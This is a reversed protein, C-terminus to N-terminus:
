EAIEGIARIITLSQEPDNTILQIRASMVESPLQSPDATVTIEMSKGKKVKGSSPTVTIGADTSYARRVMLDSKGRNEVTFTRSVNEGSRQITGFDLRETNVAVVPANQRQGPTLTSFDEELIASLDLKLSDEGSAGVYVTDNILGYPTSADPTITLSYVIQEGPPIGGESGAIRVYSPVGTWEPTVPESSSNYIEVFTAKARGKLVTGFPVLQTRFKLPGAQVPYRSMLTSESGIVVGNITLQKRPGAGEGAIDVSLTKSFRGPRGAPNFTAVVVGTEGPQIPQKTYSPTTCGCSAKVARISVAEKGKNVFRFNCTVKGDDERFAGFDHETELWEVNASAGAACVLAVLASLIRLKM